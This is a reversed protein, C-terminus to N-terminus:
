SYINNTIKKKADINHTIYRTICTCTLKIYVYMLDSLSVGDIEREGVWECVRVWGIVCM